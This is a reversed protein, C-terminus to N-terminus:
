LSMRRLDKWASAARWPRSGPRPAQQSGCVVTQVRRSPRRKGIRDARGGGKDDAVLGDRRAEVGIEGKQAPWDARGRGHDADQGRQLGPATVGASELKSVSEVRHAARQRAVEEGDKGADFGALRVGSAAVGPRRTSRPLSAAPTPMVAHRSADADSATTQRVAHGLRREEGLVARLRRRLRGGGRRGRDDPYLVDAPVPQGASARGSRGRPRPTSTPSARSIARRIGRRCGASGRRRRGPGPAAAPSCGSRSASRRTGSTTRIRRRGNWGARRATSACACRTRTAPRSRAAGSCAARAARSACCCTATTTSAAARARLVAPRRGAGRATLGTVFSALNFAHTGIDGTSGGAGPARRIPAGAPRSRRRDGRAADGALGPRVGGAGGPDQRARGDAVMARAQRIMPYGTYNHTLVFLADSDAAVKALKKAEPLTATLPKDCIVHIGRKLFERAAPAHMHNPRSSRWRRSATRGGRRASPWRRSTTTSATRPRAGAGRGVGAGEGADLVARGGGARVRRRDAGRHPARAGIFADKGGGVMGLRIRAPKTESM